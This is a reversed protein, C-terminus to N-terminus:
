PKKMEIKTVYTWVNEPPLWAYSIVNKGSPVGEARLGDDLTKKDVERPLAINQFTSESDTFLNISIRKQLSGFYIIELKCALYVLDNVIHEINLM